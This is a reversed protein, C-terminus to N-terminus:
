IHRLFLLNVIVKYLEFIKLVNVLFILTFLEKYWFSVLNKLQLNQNNLFFNHKSFIIQNNNQYNNKLILKNKLFSIKKDFQKALFFKDKNSEIYITNLNYNLFNFLSFTQNSINKTLQNNLNKNTKFYYKKKQLFYFFLKLNHNNLYNYINYNSYFNIYTNRNLINLKKTLKKKMKM